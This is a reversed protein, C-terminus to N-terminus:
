QPINIIIRTGPQKENQRRNVVELTIKKRLRLNLLRIREASLSMGHLKPAFDSPSKHEQSAKIGQGNDTIECRLNKGEQHIWVELKPQGPHERLGHLIANEVYPQLLMSPVETNFVDLNEAVKITYEFPSRLAELECYQRLHALEEELSIYDQESHYLTHRLLKSFGSLYRNAGEQDNRNVLSQISALANFLFHPNLQARIGRLALQAQQRQRRIRRNRLFLFIILLSLTAGFAIAFYFIEEATFAGSKPLYFHWPFIQITGDSGQMHIGFAYLFYVAKKQSFLLAFFYEKQTKPDVAFVDYNVKNAGNLAYRNENKYVKAINLRHGSYILQDGVIQVNEPPDITSLEPIFGERFESYKKQLSTPLTTSELRNKRIFIRPANGFDGGWGINHVTLTDNQYKLWMEGVSYFDEMRTSLAYINQFQYIRSFESYHIPYMSKESQSTLIGRPFFAVIGKQGGKGKKIEQWYGLLAAPIAELQEANKVWDESLIRKPININEHHGLPPRSSTTRSYNIARERFERPTMPGPNLRKLTIFEKELVGPPLFYFGTQCRIKLFDYGQPILELSCLVGRFNISILITDGRRTTGEIYPWMQNDRLLCHRYFRLSYSTGEYDWGGEIETAINVTPWFPNEERLQALLFFPCVLFIFLLSIRNRKM